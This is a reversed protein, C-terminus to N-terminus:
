HRRVHEVGGHMCTMQVLYLTVNILKTVGKSLAFELCGAVFYMARGASKPRSYVSPWWFRTHINSHLTLAAACSVMRCRVFAVFGVDWMRLGSLEGPLGPVFGRANSDEAKDPGARRIGLHTVESDQTTM